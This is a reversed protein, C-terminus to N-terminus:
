LDILVAIEDFGQYLRVQAGFRVDPKDSGYLRMADAYTMRQFPLELRRQLMEQWVYAVLQEIAAMVSEEDAFAM